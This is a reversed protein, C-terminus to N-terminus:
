FGYKMRRLQFAVEGGELIAKVQESVDPADIFGRALVCAHLDRDDQEVDMAAIFEADGAVPINPNHTAFLMQREGRESRLIEVIEQYVFRNDLDDEPQDIILPGKSELLLISLIATCGQGVSVGEGLNRGLARWIGEGDDGHAGEGGANPLAIDMEIKVRDPPQIEDLELRAEFDLRELLKEIKGSELGCYEALQGLADPPLLTAAAQEPLWAEYLPADLLKEKAAQEVLALLPLLNPAQIKLLTDYDHSRLRSGRLYQEWLERLWAEDRGQEVTIRVRPLRGTINGAKAQRLLFQEEANRTLDRLYGRRVDFLRAMEQRSKEIERDLQELEARERELRLVGDPSLNPLKSLAQRYQTEFAQREQDWTKRAQEIDSHADALTAEIKQWIVEMDQRLRQMRGKLWALKDIHSFSPYDEESLQVESPTVRRRADELAKDSQTLQALAEEWLQTARDYLRKTQSSEQIGLQHYQRLQEDIRVRDSLRDERQKIREYEVLIAERNRRLDILLTDRARQCRILGEGVFRDLLELQSSVHKSTYLIEKQGYLQLPLLHEPRLKTALWQDTEWCEVQTPDRGQRVLRYKGNENVVELEARGTEPLFVKKFEELDEPQLPEMEWLYRILEIMASKGTGRAGIICNLRPNFEVDVDRLFGTTNFGDQRPLRLASLYCAPEPPPNGQLRVRARPDLLAHKLANFTPRECKIYTFQTGVEELKRGDSANICAIPSAREFKPNKNTVVERQWKTLEEFRSKNIQVGLLKDCCFQNERSLGCNENSDLLGRHGFVHAAIAIGGRADIAEVVDTFSKDCPSTHLQANDDGPKPDYFRRDSTLGLDDDLLRELTEVPENEPFIALIHISNRGSAAAIEIGPFLVFTDEYLERAAQRFPAIWSTDNHNTIAIADLKAQERAQWIYRRAFALKEEPTAPVDEGSPMTFYQGKGPTHLHLDFKKFTAGRSM